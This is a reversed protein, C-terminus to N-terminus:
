QDPFTNTTVPLQMDIGAFRRNQFCPIYFPM